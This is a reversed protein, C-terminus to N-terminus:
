GAALRYGRRPVTEVGGAAPGLRRRLRGVAVEVAHADAGGVGWVSRLLEAKAVVTGPRRALAALLARERRPLWVEEGGVVALAGQLVVDCGGLRLRLTAEEFRAVLADMLAGLRLRDVRLVGTMGAAGAAEASGSGLCAPVVEGALAALAEEGRPHGAAREVLEQVARATTFTVADVDGRALAEVLCRQAVAGRTPARLPALDSAGAALVVGAGERRLLWAQEERRRVATVAVRWGALPAPPAGVDSGPGDDSPAMAATDGVPTEGPNGAGQRLTPADSACPAKTGVM